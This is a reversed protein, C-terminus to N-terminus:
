TNRSTSGTSMSSRAIRFLPSANRCCTITPYRSTKKTTRLPPGWAVAYIRTTQLSTKRSCDAYSTYESNFNAMCIILWSRVRHYTVFLPFHEDNLESFKKPFDERYEDEEDYDYLGSPRNKARLPSAEGSSDPVIGRAEFFAVMKEYYEQVKIALKASQTVFIQRPRSMAQAHQRSRWMREIGVMKIMM